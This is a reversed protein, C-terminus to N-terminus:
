SQVVATVAAALVVVALVCRWRDVRLLATAVQPDFGRGLRGHRPAAGLATLTLIVAFAGSAVWTGVSGAGSAVVWVVSLLLAGYTVVVLPVIRRGHAAHRATWDHGDRMLAPYVLLTVTVQFGAHLAAAVALAILPPDANM